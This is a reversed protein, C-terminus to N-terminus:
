FALSLSLNVGQQTLEGSKRWNYAGNLSVDKTLKQELGVTARNLSGPVSYGALTYDLSPLTNLAMRLHQQDDKFEREHAYEAFVLTQTAFAYKGQLGAGLRRSDRRQDAFTLATSRNGTESYGDVNVRSYDASLFPSLHWASDLPALDFGLRGSFALLDGDTDGKEARENIGLAFARKLNDYELKGASLAADGWWHNQRYQLFATALYSDLHYRSDAAGAEMRQRYFGAALGGRWHEAFRYSRGVLLSYGRSDGSASSNQEDFDLRQGGASVIAQWQNNAQWSGQWQNRLEDQHARLTGQAMEPLLTIEWPAALLSYGYDAIIDQGASTPHVSDNFLLKSPDPTASNLGYQSNETCGNGSFCTGVLNQGVALGFQGPDALTESILVPINLPIIEADIQQLQNVLSQNFAASLSSTYQQLPTGNIAPTLGLDPLLWVMVYRAGGQQLAQVSDALRGAAAAAQAPTLVRGQLFDNGGGSIYYLANPDAKAGNALYGPKSRYVTGDNEIVSDGVISQYIQDTRYGGTAWNNGDPLGQADLVPSTSPALDGPKIGLLGGLLMPSTAAFEEGSGGQYTPGTRNTFRQTAGPPGNVDPFQGADSLSDGFVIMTSYPSPAAGAHACALALACALLPRSAPHKKM